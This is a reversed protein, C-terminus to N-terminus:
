FTDAQLFALISSHELLQILISSSLSSLMRPNMESHFRYCEQVSLPKKNILSAYSPPALSIFIINSNSHDFVGLSVQTRGVELVDYQGGTILSEIGAGIPALELSRIGVEVAESTAWETAGDAVYGIHGVM